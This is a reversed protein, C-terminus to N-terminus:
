IHCPGRDSRVVLRVKMGKATHCTVRCRGLAYGLNVMEKRTLISLICNCVARTRPRLMWTHYPGRESRVVLSAKMGELNHRIARCNGTM